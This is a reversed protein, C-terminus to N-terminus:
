AAHLATMLNWLIHKMMAMTKDPAEITVCDPGDIAWLLCGIALHSLVQSQVKSHKSKQLVVWHVVFLEQLRRTAAISALQLLSHLVQWLKLFLEQALCASGSSSGTTHWIEVM